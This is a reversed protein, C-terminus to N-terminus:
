RPDQDRVRRQLLRGSVYGVQHLRATWASLFSLASERCDTKSITFAELDYWLTSGPVIGLRKAAAVTKDAEARGQRM